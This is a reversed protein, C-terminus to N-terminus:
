HHPRLFLTDNHTDAYLIIREELTDLKVFFETAKFRPTNNVYRCGYDHKSSEPDNEIYDKKFYKRQIIPLFPHSEYLCVSIGGSPTTINGLLYEKYVTTKNIRLSKTPELEGFTLFGFIGFFCGFGIWLFLFVSATGKIINNTSRYGKWLLYSAALHFIAFMLWNLTSYTFSIKLLIALWFVSVIGLCVVM